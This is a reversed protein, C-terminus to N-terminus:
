TWGSREFSLARAVDFERELAVARKRHGRVPSLLNCPAPCVSHTGDGRVTKQM